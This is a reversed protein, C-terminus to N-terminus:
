NRLDLAQLVQSSTVGNYRYELDKLTFPLEDTGDLRILERNRILRQRSALISARISPKSIEEAHILVGDLDGFQELLWAATKPGVRDAGRINDATDGTLSKLDAYQEPEIKLKSQIYARDCILTNDGRYRLIRVNDSILQFFDSDFSSIVIETDGGYKRVYGAMWDDTECCQTERHRIGLWELARYIDPLQSFPTDEQAMDSYDPRNAKYAEDLGRRPNACEGDFFVAMHTPNVRRLIRLMAGLFGVTGHIPRGDPGNLRAPMGYFMQFLLNSGDILLLRDM